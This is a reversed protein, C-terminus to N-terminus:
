IQMNQLAHLDSCNLVSEFQENKQAVLFRWKEFRLWEM